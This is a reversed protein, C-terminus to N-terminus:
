KALRRAVITLIIAVAWASNWILWTLVLLGAWGYFIQVWLIILILSILGFGATIAIIFKGFKVHTTTLLYGGIIIALGGSWAIIFLILLIVDIIIYFPALAAISHLFIYLAVITGVGNNYNAFLFLLGAFICLFFPTQNKM